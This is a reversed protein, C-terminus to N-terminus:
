SVARDVRRLWVLPITRDTQELYEGQHRNIKVVKAWLADLEDDPVEEAVADFQQQGLIVTVEPNAQMNLYWAPHSAM